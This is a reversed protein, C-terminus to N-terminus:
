GSMGRLDVVVADHSFCQSASGTHLVPVSIARVVKCLSLHHRNGSHAM